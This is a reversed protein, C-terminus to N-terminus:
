LCTPTKRKLVRRARKRTHERASARERSEKLLWLLSLLVFIFRAAACTTHYSTPASSFLRLKPFSRFPLHQPIGVNRGELQPFRGCDINCKNLRKRSTSRTGQVEWSESVCRALLRPENGPCQSASQGTSHPRPPPYFFRLAPTRSAAKGERNGEVCRTVLTAAGVIVLSREKTESLSRNCKAFSLFFEATCTFPM